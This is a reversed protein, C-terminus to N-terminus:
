RLAGRELSATQHLSRPLWEKLSFQMWSLDHKAKRVKLWDDIQSERWHGARIPAPFLSKRVLQMIYEETWAIHKLRKLEVFSIIRM